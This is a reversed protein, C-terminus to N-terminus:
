DDMPPRLRPVEQGRLLRIHEWPSSEAAEEFTSTLGDVFSRITPINSSARVVYNRIFWPSETARRLCIAPAIM